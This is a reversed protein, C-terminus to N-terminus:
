IQKYSPRYKTLISSLHSISTIEFTLQFQASLGRMRRGGSNARLSKTKFTGQGLDNFTAWGNTTKTNGLTDDTVIAMANPELSINVAVADFVKSLDADANVRYHIHPRFSTFPGGWSAGEYMKHVNWISDLLGGYLYLSGGSSDGGMIAASVDGYVKSTWVGLDMNFITTPNNVSSSPSTIWYENRKSDFFGVFARPIGADVLERFRTNNNRGSLNELKLGAVYGVMASDRDMFFVGQGDTAVSKPDKTGFLSSVVVPESIIAGTRVALSGSDALEVSSALVPIYHIGNDQLAYLRDGGLQLKNIDGVTEDVDYFNLARFIDFGEIDSQYIKPDSYIIRSSFTTNNKEYTQFPFFVKYNNQQAYDLHYRYDFASRIQGPQEARPVPIADTYGTHPSKEAVCPNIESELLVTVTQSVGRLPYPRSVDEGKYKDAKAEKDFYWGWKDTQSTPTGATGSGDAEKEPDTLVYTSDTIKFTHLGVFCDGGYVAINDIPLSGGAEVTTLEADTFVHGAGTFQFALEDEADGYRLDDLEREVNIIEIASIADTRNDLSNTTFENTAESIAASDIAGRASFNLFHTVQSSIADANPIAVDVNPTPVTPTDFCRYTPDEISDEGLRIGIMNQGSPSEGEDLGDVEIDNFRNISTTRMKM